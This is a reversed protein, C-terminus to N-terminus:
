TNKERFAAQMQYLICEQNRPSPLTEFPSVAMRDRGTPEISNDYDLSGVQGGSAPPNLTDGASAGLTFAM